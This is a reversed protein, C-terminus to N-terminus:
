VYMMGTVCHNCPINSVNRIFKFWIFTNTISLYACIYSYMNECMVCLTFYMVYKLSLINGFHDCVKRYLEIINFYHFIM